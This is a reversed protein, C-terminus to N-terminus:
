MKKIRLLVMFVRIQKPFHQRIYVYIKEFINSKLFDNKLIPVMKKLKFFLWIGVKEDIKCLKAYKSIFVHTYNIYSECLIEDSSWKQQSSNTLLLSFSTILNSHYYLHHLVFMKSIASQCKMVALSCVTRLFDSSNTSLNMSCFNAKVISKLVNFKNVGSDINTLLSNYIRTVVILLCLRYFWFM